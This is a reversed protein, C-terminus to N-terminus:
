KEKSCHPIWPFASKKKTTSHKTLHNLESYTKIMTHHYTLNVVNISLQIHILYVWQLGWKLSHTLKYRNTEWLLLILFFILNTKTFIGKLEHSCSTFQKLRPTFTVEQFSCIVSFYNIPIFGHIGEVNKDKRTRLYVENPWKAEKQCLHAYILSRQRKLPEMEPVTSLKWDPSANVPRLARVMTLESILPHPLPLYHSLPLHAPKLMFHRACPLQKPQSYFLRPRCHSPWKEGKQCLHPYILNRQRNLPEMEPLAPLKWDPSANVPQLARVM